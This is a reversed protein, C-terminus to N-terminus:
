PSNRAAGVLAALLPEPDDQRMLVEGILAADASSTRLETVREPSTVGSFHLKTVREPLSRLIQQAREVDMQLTDLDRANVGILDAGCQLATEAEEKTAVEVIPILDISNARDILHELNAPNLCRAILLVADAGHARAVHLQLEDIVFEKCLLPLECAARAEALHQYSGDFFSQDCLVSLMTAGAREYARAREAVSLRTSLRGASPSRRKIETILRLPDGPQRRLQVTRRPPPAPRPLASLAGLEARKTELIRELLGM